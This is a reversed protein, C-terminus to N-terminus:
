TVSGDLHAKLEPIHPLIAKNLRAMADVMAAHIQPWEDENQWGGVPLTHRIVSARKQDHRDWDLPGNFSADIADRHSALADFLAKNISQDGRDIYLLVQSDRQNVVYQFSMGNIGASAQIYHYQTPSINAHLSLRKAAVQLLAQWFRYRTGGHGAFREQRVAHGKERVRIQYDAAEPLPIVQQVDILVRDGDLYPKLRVCRIDLDRENLWMVATTLEKSFDASVLVIRVDQAFREEDPEEWDLFTLLAARSDANPASIARGFREHLEAAKEFTLSSVMAAYRIAQLDMHGGDESRKLEIVVLNADKDIALLDIRRKCDDWDSFEEAIVMLGPDIVDIQQRLLRQLDHRERLNAADFTTDNIRRIQKETIEFIAM